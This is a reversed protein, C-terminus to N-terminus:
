QGVIVQGLGILGDLGIEVSLSEQVLQALALIDVQHLSKPSHM